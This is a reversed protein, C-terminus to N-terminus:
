CYMNLEIANQSIVFIAFSLKLYIAEFVLIFKVLSGKKSSVLANGIFTFNIISCFHSHYYLLYIAQCVNDSVWQLLAPSLFLM